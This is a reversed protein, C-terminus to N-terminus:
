DISHLFPPSNSTISDNKSSSYMPIIVALIFGLILYLQSNISKEPEKNESTKPSIKHPPIIKLNTLSTSSRVKPPSKIGVDRKINIFKSNSKSSMFLGDSNKLRVDGNDINIAEVLLPFVVILPCIFYKFIAFVFRRTSVLNFKPKFLSVYLSFKFIM